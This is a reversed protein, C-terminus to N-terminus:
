APQERITTRLGQKLRVERGEQVQLSMITRHQKEQKVWKEANTITAKERYAQEWLMMSAEWKRFCEVPIASLTKPM